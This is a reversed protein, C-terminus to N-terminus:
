RLADWLTAATVLITSVSGFRLEDGDEVPLLDRTVTVGSVLTGNTSKADGLYFCGDDDCEFWAHFKSVSEHRLVIDNNRARGVSIRLLFPKGAIRRKRLPALYHDHKALLLKLKEPGLDPRARKPRSAPEDEMIPTGIVTSFTVSPSLKDGGASTEQNLWTALEGAGGEELRVLLFRTDGFETVFADKRASRVEAVLNPPSLRQVRV